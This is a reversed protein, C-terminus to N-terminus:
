DYGHPKKRPQYLRELTARNRRVMGGQAELVSTLSPLSLAWGSTSGERLACQLHCLRTLGLRPGWSM